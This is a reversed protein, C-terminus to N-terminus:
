RRGGSGRSNAMGPKSSSQAPNCNELMFEIHKTPFKHLLGSKSFSVHAAVAELTLYSISQRVVAAKAPDLLNDKLDQKDKMMM